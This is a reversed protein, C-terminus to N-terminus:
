EEILQGHISAGTATDGFSALALVGDTTAASPTVTISRSLTESAFDDSAGTHSGTNELTADYDETLNTWSYTPVSVDGFFTSVGILFGGANIDISATAFEDAGSDSDTATDTPTIPVTNCTWVGIGARVMAANFTVVVDATTGTPVTAVWIEAVLSNVGAAVYNIASAQTASVGGITVSAVNRAVGDNYQGTIAVFVRRAADAAGVAQGSFTYETANATTAETTQYSVSYALTFYSPVLLGLLLTIIIKKM